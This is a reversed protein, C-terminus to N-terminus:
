SAIQGLHWSAIVGVAVLVLLWATPSQHHQKRKTSTM